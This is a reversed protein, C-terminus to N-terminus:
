QLAEIEVTLSGSNDGYMPDHYQASIQAGAGQWPVEYVHNSAYDGWYPPGNDDVVLDDIAIGVDVGNGAVDRPNSSFDFWEADGLNGSGMVDCTGSARLRYTVGNTLEATSYVAAGTCPVTLTDITTWELPGGGGPGGGGQPTSGGQLGAGGSGATGTSSSSTTSTSGAAGGASATGTPSSAAGGGVAYDGDLGAIALCGVSGALWAGVIGLGLRHM